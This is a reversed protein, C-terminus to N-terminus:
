CGGGFRVCCAVFPHITPRQVQVFMRKEDYPFVYVFTPIHGDIGGELDADGELHDTSFDMLLMEDVPYRSLHVRDRHACRCPCTSCVCPGDLLPWVIYVGVHGVGGELHDTSFDM